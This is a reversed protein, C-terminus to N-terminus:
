AYIFPTLNKTRGLLRCQLSNHNMDISKAAEKISDYFIGTLTNIVIKSSDKRNNIMLQKSNVRLKDSPVKLKTDYAHQNNEGHTAWELNDLNNNLKNGDKHNVCRKNEPNPIFAEALLRHILFTGNERTTGVGLYGNNFVCGTKINEKILRKRGDKRYTLRALTKVRGLNSIQYKGELGKVNKWVEM